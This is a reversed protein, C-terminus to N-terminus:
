PPFICGLAERYGPTNPQNALQTDGLQVDFSHVGNGDIRTVRWIWVTGWDCSNGDPGPFVIAAANKTFGPNMCGDPAGHSYLVNDVHSVCTGHFEKLQWNPNFTDHEYALGVEGDLTYGPPVPDPALVLIHVAPDSNRHYKNLPVPQKDAWALHIQTGLPQNSPAPSQSLAVNATRAPIPSDKVCQFGANTIETCAQNIDKGTVPPVTNQGSWVVIHVVTGAPYTGPGPQTGQVRDIDGTHNAAPSGAVFDCSSFRQLCERQVRNKDAGFGDPAKQSGYDPLAFSGAYVIVKIPTAAHVAVGKRPTQDYAKGADSPKNTAAPGVAATCTPHQDASPLSITAGQLEDCKAKGAQGRLDPMPFTDYYYVTVTDGKKAEQGSQPDLSQVTGFQDVSTGQATAPKPNCTLNAAEITACQQKPTAGTALDPVKVPGVYQVTVTTTVPVTSGEAPLTRVVDDAQGESDSAGSVPVCNEVGLQQIQQCADTYQTGPPFTPLTVRKAPAHGSGSGNGGGNGNGSGSGNGGGHGSGSGGSGSGPTPAGPFPASGTKPGKHKRSPTDGHVGDGKGKDVSHTGKSDLLLLHQAHQDNAWLKGGSVFLDFTKDTGPVKLRTRVKSSVGNEDVVIVNHATYDPVYARGRYEVPRGLEHGDAFLRVFNSTGDSPDVVALLGSSVVLVHPGDGRLAAVIMRGDPGPALGDVTTVTEPTAADVEIVAGSTTVLYTHGGARTLAAGRTVKLNIKHISRDAEVRTLQGSEDLLIVSGNPGPAIDIPKGDLKIPAQTKGDVLPTVSSEDFSAIWGRNGSAIVMAPRTFGKSRITATSTVTGGDIISVTGTRENVVVADGSPMTTVNMRETGKALRGKLTADTQRAESNVHAVTTGKAVFASGDSLSARAVTYGAGLSAALGAAALAAVVLGSAAKGSRRHQNV